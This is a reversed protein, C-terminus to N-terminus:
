CNQFFIREWKLAGEVMFNEQNIPKGQSQTEPKAINTETKRNFRGPNRVNKQEIGVAMDWTRRGVQAGTDVRRNNWRGREKFITIPEQNIERGEARRHGKTLRPATSM